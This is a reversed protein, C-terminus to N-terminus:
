PNLSDTPVPVLQTYVDGLSWSLVLVVPIALLSWRLTPGRLPRLRLAAWRHAPDEGRPARLLYGWLLLAYLALSLPLAVIPSAILLVSGVVLNWLIFVAIYKLAQKMRGTPSYRSRSGAQSTPLLYMGAPPRCPTP